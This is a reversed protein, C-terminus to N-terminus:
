EVEAPCFGHVEVVVIELEEGEAVGGVGAEEEFCRSVVFSEGVEDVGDFLAAAEYEEGTFDAGAFGEDRVEEEPVELVVGLDGEDAVGVEVGGLEDAEDAVLEGDFCGGVGVFGAHEEGDVLEEDLLKGFVAEDDDDDVFGLVEGVFDEFFEAHEGVQFGGGVFEELDDEDALGFEAVFDGLGVEFLEALADCEGVVEFGEGEFFDGGVDLMAESDGRRPALAALFGVEGGFGDGFDGAEGASGWADDVAEAVVGEEVAEGGFGVGDVLGEDVFNEFVRHVEDGAVAGGEVGWGM